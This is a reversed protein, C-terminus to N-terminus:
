SAELERAPDRARATSTSLPNLQVREAGGAMEVGETVIECAWRWAYECPTVAAMDACWSPLVSYGVHAAAYDCSEKRYVLRAPRAACTNATCALGKGTGDRESRARAEISATDM